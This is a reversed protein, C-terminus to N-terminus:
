SRMLFSHAFYMCAQLLFLTNAAAWGAPPASPCAEALHLELITEDPVVTSM